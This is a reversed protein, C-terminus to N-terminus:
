LLHLEDVLLTHQAHNKSVNLKSFECVQDPLMATTLLETYEENLLYATTLILRFLFLSYLM